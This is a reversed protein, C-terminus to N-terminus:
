RRDHHDREERATAKRLREIFDVVNSCGQARAAADEAERRTLGGDFEMIAAREEFAELCTVSNVSNVSRGGSRLETMETMQTGPGVSGSSEAVGLISRWSVAVGGRHRPPRPHDALASPRQGAGGGERDPRIGAGRADRDGAYPRGHAPLQGAAGPSGRARHLVRAPEAEGLELCTPGGRRRQGHGHPGAGAPPRAEDDAGRAGPGNGHEIGHLVGAIRAAMGPAKGAWDTAHEFPAGPLMEGEVHRAFALLDAHAEATLGIIHMAPNGDADIDLPWSLMARITEGYSQRLAPPIPAADHSRYGLNSRPMLYCFRALLGRGRFGPKRALGRLVDPQPSLGVTLLPHRLFIPPRSGRDVRDADGSHAKLVLDLNPVGNSYRGGLMDFIGGESSLWALREQNIALLTGLHEPTADSTWLQPVRPIEPISAEIGRVQESYGTADIEDEAKAAKNRFERARARMTEVESTIRMVEPAAAEAQEREWDLIPAVAAAQV